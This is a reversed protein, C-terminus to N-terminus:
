AHGSQPREMETRAAVQGCQPPGTFPTYGSPEGKTEHRLGGCVSLRLVGRALIAALEQLREDPTLENARPLAHIPM